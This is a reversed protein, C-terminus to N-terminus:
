QYTTYVKPDFAERVAEGIFTVMILIVLMFSIVSGVIWPSTLNETGQQLLEGWSPTPPPLGFGLYDLATLSTIGAAVQFPVFTIIISVANPLIHFFIIRPTSAGISKAAQVYERAKEKYTATRMYWTMGPWSFLVMIFILSFFNPVVLSSIIIIVYFFPINSWIEIIRQCILDFRGGLYGMLCGLSIGIIYTMLLLGLTFFIAIRFGYFLRAIIDRGTNDTGLYHRSEWSPAFPPFEGDRLDNEFPNFPVLPLIVFNGDEHAFRQQLKRYNVEYDYDEGFEAGSIFSGYTPFYFTGQYRVLLARNNVFLEAFLSLIILVVLAVFSYYGRKISKFRKLRKKTIPDLALM